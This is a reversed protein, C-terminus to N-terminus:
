NNVNIHETDPKFDVHYVPKPIKTSQELAQLLLMLWSFALLFAIIEFGTLTMYTGTVFLFTIVFLVLGIGYSTLQFERTINPVLWKVGVIMAIIMYVLMAAAQNHWEPSKGAGDAPFYGVLGLSIATVILLIKLVTLGKHNPYFHRLYVFMYDILAIMLLASIMLTLNFQWSGAADSTGLFSLNDIWWQQESNTIMSILVGGLIVTVLLKTMLPPSLVFIFNIMVYNILSFVVLALLTSLYIDLVLGAFVIGILYFVFLLIMGVIIALSLVITPFNRWYIAKLNPRGKRKQFVFVGTSVLFGSITGIILMMSASSTQGTLPIMYIDKVWFYFFFILGGLLSPLLFLRLSMDQGEAGKNIPTLEYREGNLEIQVMQNTKIDQKFQNPAYVKIKQELQEM